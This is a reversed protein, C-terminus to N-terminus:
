ETNELEELREQLELIYDILQKNTSDNAMNHNNQMHTRLQDRVMDGSKCDKNLACKINLKCYKM